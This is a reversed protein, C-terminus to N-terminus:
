YIFNVYIFIVTVVSNASIVMMPFFVSFFLLLSPESFASVRSRSTPSVCVPTYKLRSMM